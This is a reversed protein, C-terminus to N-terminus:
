RKHLMEVKLNEELEDIKATLEKAQKSVRVKGFVEDDIKASIAVAENEKMALQAELQKQNSELDAIAEQTLRYDNEIKRTIKEVEVRKKKERDLTDELDDLKEELKSKVNALFNCRDEVTQHDESTKRNCEQLHKKEKTIKSILEQQYTVEDGLTKLGSEKAAVEAQAQAIRQEVDNVDNKIFDIDAEKKKGM